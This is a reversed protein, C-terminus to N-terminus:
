GERRNTVRASSRRLTRRKDNPLVSHFFESGCKQETKRRDGGTKSIAGFAVGCDTRDGVADERVSGGADFNGGEEVTVFQLLDCDNWVRDFLPVGFAHVIGFHLFIERGMRLDRFLQAREPFRIRRAVVFIRRDRRMVSKMVGINRQGIRRFFIAVSFFAAALPVDHVHHTVADRNQFARLWFIVCAGDGLRDRNNQERMKDAVDMLGGRRRRKSRHAPGAPSDRDARAFGPHLHCSVRAGGRRCVVARRRSSASAGRNKPYRCRAPSDGAVEASWASPLVGRLFPRRRLLDRSDDRARRAATIPFPRRIKRQFIVGFGPRIFNERRRAPARDDGSRASRASARDRFFPRRAPSRHLFRHGITKRIPITPLFRASRFADRRNAAPRDEGGTARRLWAVGPVGIAVGSLLAVGSTM